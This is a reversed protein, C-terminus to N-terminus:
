RLRLALLSSEPQEMLEPLWKLERPAVTSRRLGPLLADDLTDPIEDKPLVLLGGLSMAGLVMKGFPEVVPTVDDARRPLIILRAEGRASPLLLLNYTGRVTFDSDLKTIIRQAWRCVFDKKGSVAIGRFFGQDYSEVKGAESSRLVTTQLTGDHLMRELPLREHTAQWHLHFQSNSAIGNYHLTVPKKSGAFLQYDIMDSLLQPTFGQPQHQAATIVLHQSEAEVYPYRNPWIVYDRWRLGPEGGPPGCLACDCAAHPGTAKPTKRRNPCLQVELHGDPGYETLRQMGKFGDGIYGSRLTHDYLTDVATPLERDEIRAVRARTWTEELRVGVQVAPKKQVRVASPPSATQAKAVPTSPAWSAPVFSPTSIKVPQIIPLFRINNHTL